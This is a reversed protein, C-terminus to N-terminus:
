IESPKEANTLVLFAPHYFVCVYKSTLTSVKGFRHAKVVEVRSLLLSIANQQKYHNTVFRKGRIQQPKLNGVALSAVLM